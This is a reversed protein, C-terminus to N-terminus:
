EMGLAHSTKSLEKPFPVRITNLYQKSYPFTFSGFRGTKHGCLVSQVCGACKSASRHTPDFEGRGDLMAKRIRKYVEGLANRDPTSNGMIKRAHMQEICITYDTPENVKGEGKLHYRWYVLYGYLPGFERIAHIYSRLQNLHNDYFQERQRVREIARPDYGNAECWDVPLDCRPAKPILQFKEEVVFHSNTKANLFVYDPQGIYRGDKGVFWKHEESNSTTGVFVAVSDALDQLLERTSSNCVLQTAHRPLDREAAFDVGDPTRSRVFKLLKHQEHMTVGVRASVLRPLEFTKAISWAVPCYTFQSIDTASITTRSPTLTKYQREYKINCELMFLDIINFRTPVLRNDVAIYEKFEHDKPFITQGTKADRRIPKTGLNVFERCRTAIRKLFEERFSDAPFQLRELLYDLFLQQKNSLQM